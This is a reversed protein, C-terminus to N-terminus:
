AARDSPRIVIKVQADPKRLEAFADAVGDLGVQRTILAQADLGGEAIAHLTDSFEQASYAVAFRIELEKTLATFPHFQDPELCAGVVVILAGRPAAEIVSQLVGPLGVCEFVVARGPSGAQLRALAAHPCDAQPDVVLDAGFREAMSRRSASFDAAVIPGHGRAKLAAIVSLGVPGCGIVVAASPEELAARGVAHAGVAFPETMAAASDGLGNPIAILMPEALVMLEGYGGPYANSLGVAGGGGPGAVFPMSVVRTGPRFRRQTDPGYDVVEASFEHGFVVGIEPDMSAGFGPGVARGLSKMHLHHLAHLDTGCIGCCLTRVLVEGAGPRPDPTEECRLEGRLAVVARV